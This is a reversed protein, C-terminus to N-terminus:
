RPTEIVHVIGGPAGPLPRPGDEARRLIEKAPVTLPRRESEAKQREYPSLEPAADPKVEILQRASVNDLVQRENLQRADLDQQRLLDGPMVQLRDQSQRLQLQFADSQQQRQMLQRQVGQEQAFAPVALAALLAALYRM